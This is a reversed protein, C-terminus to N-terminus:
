RFCIIFVVLSILPITGIKSVDVINHDKLYFYGALAGLCLCMVASSFVLLVKRGAREVLIAAGFTMLVQVVGIIISCYKPALTSGAAKFIVEAFFIVANIGSFQQFFMLMVCIFFGKRNAKVSFLERIGGSKGGTAELESKISQIATKANCFRGWYWKIATAAETEQHQLLFFFTSIFKPNM